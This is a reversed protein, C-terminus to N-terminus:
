LARQGVAEGRGLEQILEGGDGVEDFNKQRPFPMLADDAEIQQLLNLHRGHGREVARHQRADIVHQHARANGHLDGADEILQRVVFRDRIAEIHMARGGVIIHALVEIGFRDKRADGFQDPLQLAGFEQRNNRRHHRACASTLRLSPAMLPKTM